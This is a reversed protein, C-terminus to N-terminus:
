APPARPISTLPSQILVPTDQPRGAYFAPEYAQGLMPSFVAFTHQQISSLQICVPCNAHSHGKHDSDHLWTFLGSAVALFGLCALIAIWQRIRQKVYNVQYSLPEIELLSSLICYNWTKYAISYESQETNESFLQRRAIRTMYESERM